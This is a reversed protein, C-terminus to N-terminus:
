RSAKIRADMVESRELVDKIDLGDIYELTWGTREAIDWRLLAWPAPQNFKLAM